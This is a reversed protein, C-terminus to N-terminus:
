FGDGPKAEWVLWAIFLATGVAVFVSAVVIWINPLM